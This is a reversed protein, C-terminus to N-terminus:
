GEPVILFVQDSKPEFVVARVDAPADLYITGKANGGPFEAMLDLKSSDGNCIESQVTTFQSTNSITRWPFSRFPSTYERKADAPMSAEIDLAIAQDKSLGLGAIECPVDAQARTFTVTMCTETTVSSCHIDYPKGLTVVVPENDAEATTAQAPTRTSTSALKTNNDPSTDGCGALLLLSAAVALPTKSTRNTM